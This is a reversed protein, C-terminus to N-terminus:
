NGSADTTKQCERGLIPRAMQFEVIGKFRPLVGIPSIGERM